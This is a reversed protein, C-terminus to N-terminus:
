WTLTKAERLNREFYYFSSLLHLMISILSSKNSFANNELSTFHVFRLCNQTKMAIKTYM